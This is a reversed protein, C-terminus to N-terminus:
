LITVGRGAWTAKISRYAALAEATSLARSYVLCQLGTMSGVTPGLASRAVCGVGIRPTGTPSVSAFLPTSTGDDMRTLNLFGGSSKWHIVVYSTNPVALPNVDVSNTTANRSTVTLSNHTGDLSGANLCQYMNTASGDALSMPNGTGTGSFLAAVIFSWDGAMTLPVVGTTICFQTGGFVLGPPTWAPDTTADVGSTSGLQLLLGSGSKDAVTQGSGQWMDWNAIMGITPLPPAKGYRGRKAFLMVYPM